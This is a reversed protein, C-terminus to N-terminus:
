LFSSCVGKQNSVGLELDQLVAGEDAVAADNYILIAQRHLCPLRKDDSGCNHVSQIMSRVIPKSIGLCLPRFNELFLYIFLICRMKILDQVKDLGTIQLLSQELYQHLDKVWCISTDEEFAILGFYRGYKM